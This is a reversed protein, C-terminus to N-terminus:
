GDDGGLLAEAEAVVDYGDGAADHRARAADIQAATEVAPDGIDHEADYDFAENLGSTEIAARRRAYRAQRAAVMAPDADMPNLTM